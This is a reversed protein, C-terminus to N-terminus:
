LSNAIMLYGGVGAVQQSVSGDILTSAAATPALKSGSFPFGWAPTSNWLDQMTPNNNLYLGYSVPQGSIRTTDAFRIETNDWSWTKAIGDYTTQTFVGIKNVFATADPGLIKATYPGLLRGAYFVSAQN